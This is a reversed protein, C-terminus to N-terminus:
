RVQEVLDVDDRVIQHGDPVTVDDGVAALGVQQPGGAREDAGRVEDPEPLDQGRGAEGTGTQVARHTDVGVRLGDAPDGM